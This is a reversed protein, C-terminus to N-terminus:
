FWAYIIIVGVLFTLSDIGREEPQIRSVAAFSPRKHLISHIGPRPVFQRHQAKPAHAKGLAEARGKAQLHTFGKIFLLYFLQQHLGHVRADVVKVGGIQVGATLFEQSGDQLLVAQPVPDVDGGLEGQHEGPLGPVQIFIEVRLELPELGAVDIIVQEVHQRVHIGPPLEAAPLHLFPDGPLLRRPLDPLDAEGEVPGPLGKHVKQVGVVPIEDLDLVIIGIRMELRPRCPELGGSGLSDRHHDHLGEQAPAQGVPKRFLGDPPKLVFVRIGRRGLPPELPHPVVGLHRHDKAPHVLGLLQRVVQRRRVRRRGAAQRRRLQPDKLIHPLAEVSGILNVARPAVVAHGAGRPHVDRPAKRGVIGVVADALGGAPELVAHGGQQRPARAVGAQALLAPFAFPLAGLVQRDPIGQLLHLFGHLIDAELRHLGPRSEEHVLPILGRVRELVALPGQNVTKGARAVAQGQGPHDPLVQAARVDPAHHGEPLVRRNRRFVVADAEDQGGAEAMRGLHHRLDPVREQKCAVLPHEDGHGAAAAVDEGQRIEPVLKLRLGGVRDLAKGDAQRPIVQHAEAGPGQLPLPGQEVPRLLRRPVDGALDPVLHGRPLADIGRDM